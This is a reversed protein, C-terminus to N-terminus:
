TRVQTCRPTRASKTTTSLDHVHPGPCPGIATRLPIDFMVINTLTLISWSSFVHVPLNLADCPPCQKFFCIQLVHSQFAQLFLAGVRGLRFPTAAKTIQWLLVGPVRKEAVAMRYSLLSSCRSLSDQPNNGFIARLKFVTPCAVSCSAAL